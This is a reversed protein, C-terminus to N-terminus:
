PLNRAVEVPSEPAGLEAAVFRRVGDFGDFPIFAIDNQQCHIALKSCAFVTDARSACCFDSRGDGILIRLPRPMEAPFLACKCFAAGCSTGDPSRPFSLSLRDGGHEVLRSASVGDVAIGDRELLHLIVRDIGESVVRLPIGLRRCWSAFGAFGADLRIEALAKEIAPWGGRLLGVQRAMCERSGIEGRIWQEEFFRWQPDALRELLFDVTDVPAVTGDFDCLIEVAQRM